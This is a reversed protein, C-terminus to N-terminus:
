HVLEGDVIDDFSELHPIDMARIARIASVLTRDIQGGHRTDSGERRVRRREARLLRLVRARDFRQGECHDCFSM